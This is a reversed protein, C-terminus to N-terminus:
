RGAGGGADKLVVPLGFVVEAVYEAAEVLATCIHGLVRIYRETEEDYITGDSFVADSVIILHDCKERLRLIGETVETVTRRDRGDRPEAKECIQRVGAGCVGSFLTNATFDSLCDLLIVGSDPVAQLYEPKPAEMLSFGRGERQRQHREIRARAEEGDCYMTALYLLPVRRDPGFAASSAQGGKPFEALREALREAYESKGSASGGTIFFMM